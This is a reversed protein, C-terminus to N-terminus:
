LQHAICFIDGAFARIHGPESLQVPFIINISDCVFFVGTGAIIATENLKLIRNGDKLM